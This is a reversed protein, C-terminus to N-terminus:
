RRRVLGLRREERRRADEFLEETLIERSALIMNKIARVVVREVDAHTFGALHKLFKSDDVPLDHRVSRLKTALLPGLQALTPPEFLLVEDFRRWIALDLLQEHNSAAVIVSRGRYADIMQLLASVVRKLEGHEEEDARTKGLADFEDFLAVVRERELFDFVARLNASTEGLFSSVVSDFRVLALDLGLECALVEAATTKGCGPPGCLLLRSTPRLGHSGLLEARGHELIVEDLAARNTDSLVIDGLDRRAARVDVLPMGRERDRPPEYTRSPAKRESVTGQDLLQELDNALLHHKKQREERILDEAARRFEGADGSTGSRVLRRLTRSQTM